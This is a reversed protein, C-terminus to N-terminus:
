RAAVRSRACRLWTEGTFRPNSPAFHLFVHCSVLNLLDAITLAFYGDTLKTQLSPSAFSFASGLSDLVVATNPPRSGLIRTNPAMMM